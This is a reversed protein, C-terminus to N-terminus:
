HDEIFSRAANERLTCPCMLSLATASGASCREANSHQILSVGLPLSLPAVFAESGVGFTPTKQCPLAGGIVRVVPMYIKGTNGAGSLMSMAIKTSYMRPLVCNQVFCEQLRAAKTYLALQIGIHYINYIIVIRTEVPRPKSTLRAGVWVLHFVSSRDFPM